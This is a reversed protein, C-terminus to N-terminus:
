VRYRSCPRISRQEADAETCPRVLSNSWLLPASRARRHRTRSWLPQQTRQRYRQQPPQHQSTQVDPLYVLCLVCCSGVCSSKRHNFRFSVRRLAVQGNYIRDSNVLCHNRLTVNLRAIEASDSRIWKLIRCIQRTALREQRNGVDFSGCSAVTEGPHFSSM